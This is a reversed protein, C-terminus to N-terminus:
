TNIQVKEDTENYNNPKKIIEIKKQSNCKNNFGFSLLTNNGNLHPIM